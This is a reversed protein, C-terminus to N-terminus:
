AVLYQQVCALKKLRNYAHILNSAFHRREAPNEPLLQQYDQVRIGVSLFGRQSLTYPSSEQSVSYSVDVEWTAVICPLKVNDVARVAKSFSVGM